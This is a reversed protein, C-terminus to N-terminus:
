FLLSYVKGFWLLYFVFWVYWLLCFVLSVCFLSLMSWFMFIFGLCSFSVLCTLIFIFANHEEVLLWLGELQTLVIENSCHVWIVTYLIYSFICGKWRHCRCMLCVRRGSLCSALEVWSGTDKTELHNHALPLAWPLCFHGGWSAMGEHYSSSSLTRAPVVGFLSHPDFM